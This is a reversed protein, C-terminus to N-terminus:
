NSKSAALWALQAQMCETMVTTHNKIADKSVFPHPANPDRSRVLKLRDMKEFLQDHQPHIALFVDAGNKAAIGYFRNISAIWTRLATQEDSFYRVGAEQETWGRGGLVYGLHKQNGDKLPVLTSITGPTHGPTIYLTLTTDGLTLKMGDTAAMDKRPKLEAPETSKALVDWDAESMILRARPYTKQIYTSGFFSHAHAHALIVYKIQAPDQGLKKLGNTVLEAVSYEYGTDILVIGESTTVAWIAQNNENSSGVYYLNDFVKRPEAYWESRPPIKREARAAPQAVVPASPAKPEACMVEFQQSFNFGPLNAVAKAAAVHTQARSASDQANANSLLVAVFVIPALYSKM